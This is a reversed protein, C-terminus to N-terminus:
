AAADIFIRKTPARPEGNEDAAPQDELVCANEFTHEHRLKGCENCVDGGNGAFFKM